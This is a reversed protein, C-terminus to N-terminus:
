RSTRILFLNAVAKIRFTAVVIVRKGWKRRGDLIEAIMQTDPGRQPASMRNMLAPFGSTCKLM